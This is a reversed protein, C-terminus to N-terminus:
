GKPSHDHQGGFFYLRKPSNKGEDEQTWAECTVHRMKARTQKANPTDMIIQMEWNEKVEQHM